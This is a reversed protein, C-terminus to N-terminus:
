DLVEVGSLEWEQSEWETHLSQAWINTYDGTNEVTLYKGSWANKLRVKTTNSVPEIEWQMSLWDPM